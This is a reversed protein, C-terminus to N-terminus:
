MGPTKGPSISSLLVGKLVFNEEQHDKDLPFSFSILFFLHSSLPLPLLLPVLLPLPLSLSVVSVHTVHNRFSSHLVVQFLELILTSHVVPHDSLEPSLHHTKSSFLSSPSFSLLDYKPSLKPISHVFSTGSQFRAGTFDDPFM